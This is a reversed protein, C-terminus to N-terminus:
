IDQVATIYCAGPAGAGGSVDYAYGGQRRTLGAVGGGGPSNGPVVPPGSAGFSGSTAVAGGFYTVGQFVTNGPTDGAGTALQTTGDYNGGNATITPHGVIVVTTNAGDNAHVPAYSTGPFLGGSGGTGVNVTFTTTGTPIDYADGYRLRVPNWQGAGGGKYNTTDLTNVAPSTVVGGQYSGGAGAGIPVVDIYDGDIVWSPVNYTFTGATEFEVTEPVHQARGAGGALAIWPVAADYTPTAISSPAAPVM